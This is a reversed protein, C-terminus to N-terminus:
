HRWHGHVWYWGRPHHVWHGAVWVATPVPRLIYYGPHWVYRGGEWVWYGRIWYYGPGPPPPVPEVIPAPPALQIYVRATSSIPMLALLGAVLAALFPAASHVTRIMRLEKNAPQAQM